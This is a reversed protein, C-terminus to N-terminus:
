RNPLFGRGPAMGERMLYRRLPGVRDALYMGASRAAQAPLMDTLLSRNLADVARTRLRIDSQRKKEYLELNAASGIDQNRLRAKAFTDALDRVDRLSLNLGQAGIPPFVHATEGLLALRESVLREASMGSLPFTQPDTLVRFQGLISHARRELEQELAPRNMAALSNAGEPTEVCVLSSQRGSMPVLTFPGTRTHFETSINQHPRSHELNLVLAVQPYSWCKTGIGAHERLISNRGDAAVSVCASYCTGSATEVSVREAAATVGVVKSDIEVLGDTAACRKKLEANLKENLVNYGFCEIEIEASNFTVEPARLLRGTDDIMRMQQLPTADIELDSWVGIDALLRLSDQWLATTRGDTRDQGPAFLVTSFGEHAFALAAIRGAPGGGAVAIDFSTGPVAM